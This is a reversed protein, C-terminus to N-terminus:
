VVALVVLEKLNSDLVAQLYMQIANLEMELLLARAMIILDPDHSM